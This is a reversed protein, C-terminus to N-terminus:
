RKLGPERMHSVMYHNRLQGYETGDKRTRRKLKVHIYGYAELKKVGNAITTRHLGTLEAITEYTPWSEGSQEGSWRAHAQIVAFVAFANTGVIKIMKNKIFREPVRVTRENSQQAM